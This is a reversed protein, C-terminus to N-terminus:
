AVAEPVIEPCVQVIHLGIRLLECERNFRYRCAGCDDRLCANEAELILRLLKEEELAPFAARLRAAIAGRVGDVTYQMREDEWAGREAEEILDAIYWVTETERFRRAKEQETM